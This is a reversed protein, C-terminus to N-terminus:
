PTGIRSSAVRKSPHTARQRAASLVLIIALYAVSPYLVGPDAVTILSLFALCSWKHASRPATLFAWVLVLFAAIGLLGLELYVELYGNHAALHDPFLRTSSNWGFGLINLGDSTILNLATEWHGVRYGGANNGAIGGTAQVSEIRLTTQKGITLLELALVALIPVLRLRLHVVGIFLAVLLAVLGTRSGTSVAAASYIFGVLVVILVPIRPLPTLMLVLLAFGLVYCAFNPHGLLGGHRVGGENDNFASLRLIGAKDLLVSAAGVTLPAHIWTTLSQYSSVPLRTALILVLAYSLFRIVAVADRPEHTFASLVAVLGLLLFGALGWRITVRPELHIGQAFLLLAAAPLFLLLFLDDLTVGQLKYTALLVAGTVPILCLFIALTNLRDSRGLPGVRDPRANAM